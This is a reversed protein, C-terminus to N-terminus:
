LKKKIDTVLMQAENDIDTVVQKAAALKKANKVRGFGIGAALLALGAVAVFKFSLVILLM